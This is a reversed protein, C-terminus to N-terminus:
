LSWSIDCVVSRGVSGCALPVTVILLIFAFGCNFSGGRVKERERERERERELRSSQFVLFSM